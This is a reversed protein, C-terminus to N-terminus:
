ISPPYSWRVRSCPESAGTMRAVPSAVRIRAVALYLSNGLHALGQPNPFDALRHSVAAPKRGLYIPGYDRWRHRHQHGESNGVSFWRSESPQGVIALCIPDHRHIRQRRCADSQAGRWQDLGNARRRNRRSAGHYGALWGANFALLRARLMSRACIELQAAPLKVPTPRSGSIEM